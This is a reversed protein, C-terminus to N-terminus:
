NVENEKGGLDEYELYLERFEDDIKAYREYKEKKELEKIREEMKKNLDQKEKYPWVNRIVIKYSDLKCNSLLYRKHEQLYELLDDIDDFTKTLGNLLEDKGNTINYKEFLIM